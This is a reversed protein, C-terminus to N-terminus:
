THCVYFFCSVLSPAFVEECQQIHIKAIIMFAHEHSIQMKSSCDEVQVTHCFSLLGRCVQRFKDSQTLFFECLGNEATPSAMLMVICLLSNM